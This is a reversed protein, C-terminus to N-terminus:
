LQHPLDFLGFRESCVLSLQDDLQRDGLKWRLADFLAVQREEGFVTFIGLHDSDRNSQSPASLLIVM